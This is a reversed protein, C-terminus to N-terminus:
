RTLIDWRITVSEGALHSVVLIKAMREFTPDRADVLRALYIHGTIVPLSAGAASTGLLQKSEPISQFTKEVDRTILLAGGAFHISAYGEGGGVPEVYNFRKAIDGVSGLDVLVGKRGGEIGITFADTNYSGFDLDSARNHIYNDAIFHGDEGTALSIACRLPDHRYLTTLRSEPVVADGSGGAFSRAVLVVAVTAACGFAFGRM